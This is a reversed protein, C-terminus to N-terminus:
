TAELAQRVKWLYRPAQASPHNDMVYQWFQAPSLRNIQEIAENRDSSFMRLLAGAGNVYAVILAYQLTQTNDIGRLIGRELISLYAAGIDINRAPDKLERSTPQGSRGLYRWVERGATSAKIQMLGIANSKSVLTPNGGSEVAIIATLLQPSVGWAEGAQETIPMWIQAGSVPRRAEWPTHQNKPTKGSCGVLVLCLIIVGKLKM